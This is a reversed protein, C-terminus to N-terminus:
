YQKIWKKLLHTDARASKLPDSVKSNARTSHRHNDTLWLFSWALIAQTLKVHPKNWSQSVEVPREGKLESPNLTQTKWDIIRRKKWAWILWGVIFLDHLRKYIYIYHKPFRLHWNEGQLLGWITKECKELTTTCALMSGRNKNKFWSVLVKWIGNLWQRITCIVDKCVYIEM